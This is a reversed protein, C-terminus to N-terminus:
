TRGQWEMDELEKFHECMRNQENGSKLASSEYNIEYRVFGRISFFWDFV